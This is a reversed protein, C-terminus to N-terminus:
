SYYYRPKGNVVVKKTYAYKTEQKDNSTTATQSITYKKKYKAKGSKHKAEKKIGQKISM